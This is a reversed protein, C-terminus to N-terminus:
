RGWSGRADDGRAFHLIPMMGPGNVLGASGDPHHGPGAGQGIFDNVLQGHWPMPWVVQMPMPPSGTLPVLKM